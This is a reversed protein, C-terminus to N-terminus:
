SITPNTEYEKRDTAPAALIRINVPINLYGPTRSIHVCGVTACSCDVVADSAIARPVTTCAVGAAHPGRAAAPGNNGGPTAGDDTSCDAISGCDAALHHVGIAVDVVATESIAGLGNAAQVGQILTRRRAGILCGAAGGVASLFRVAATSDEIAAVGVTRLINAAM